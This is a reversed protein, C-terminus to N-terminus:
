RPQAPPLMKPCLNEEPDTETVEIKKQRAKACEAVPLAISTLTHGVFNKYIANALDGYSATDNADIQHRHGDVVPIVFSAELGLKLLADYKGNLPKRMRGLRHKM